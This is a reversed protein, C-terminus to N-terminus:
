LIQAKANEVERTGVTATRGVKQGRWPIRPKNVASAQRDREQANVNGLVARLRELSRYYYHQVNGATNGTATAAEQM